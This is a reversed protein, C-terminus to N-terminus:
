KAFKAFAELAKDSPNDLCHEIFDNTAKGLKESDFTTIGKKGLAYGNLVALAVTREEGSFRVIDKCTYSTMDVMTEKPAEGEAMAAAPYLLPAAALAAPVLNRILKSM